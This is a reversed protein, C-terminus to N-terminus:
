RFDDLDAIHARAKRAVEASVQGREIARELLQLREHAPLYSPRFRRPAYCTVNTSAFGFMATLSALLGAVGLGIRGPARPASLRLRNVLLITAAAILALGAPLAITVFLAWREKSAQAELCQQAFLSGLAFPESSPPPAGGNAALFQEAEPPFADASGVWSGGEPQGGRVYVIPLGLFDLDPDPRRAAPRGGRPPALDEPESGPKRITRNLRDFALEIQPDRGSAAIGKAWGAWDELGLTDEGCDSLAEPLKGTRAVHRRISVSRLQLELKSVSLAAAYYGRTSGASRRAWYLQNWGWALWVGAILIAMGVPLAWSPRRKGGSGAPGSAARRGLCKPCEPAEGRWDAPPQMEKHCSRCYVKV